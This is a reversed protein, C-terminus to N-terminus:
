NANLTHALEKFPRVNNDYPAPFGGGIDLLNMKDFGRSAAEAFINAALNIAQM